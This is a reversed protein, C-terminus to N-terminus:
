KPKCPDGENDNSVLSRCTTASVPIAALAVPTLLPLRLVHTWRLLRFRVSLLKMVVLRGFRPAFRNALLPCTICSYHTLQCPYSLGGAPRVFVAGDRNGLRTTPSPESDSRTPPLATPTGGLGEGNAAGGGPAKRAPVWSAGTRGGPSAVPDALSTRGPPCIPDPGEDPEPRRGFLELQGQDQRAGCRVRM